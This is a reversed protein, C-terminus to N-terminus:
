PYTIGHHLGWMPIALDTEIVTALFFRSIEVIPINPLFFKRYRYVPFIGIDDNYRSKSIQSTILSPLKEVRIDLFTSNPILNLVYDVATFTVVIIEFSSPLFKLMYTKTHRFKRYIPYVVPWSGSLKGRIANKTVFQM